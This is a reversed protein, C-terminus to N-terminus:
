IKPEAQPNVLRILTLSFILLMILASLVCFPCIARIVAIELYTLYVSYLVGALSIGFLLLTSNEKLFQVKNEFWLIALIVLYAGAGILAIPIGFIESYRSTNVTWCDGFGQICLNQNNSIKLWTLYVATILGVAAAILSITRFPPNTKSKM